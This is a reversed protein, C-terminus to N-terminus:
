SLFEQIVHRVLERDDVQGLAKIARDIAEDGVDERVLECLGRYFGDEFEPHAQFTMIHQSKRTIAYPCFDSGGLLMFDDAMTSVQDQHMALLRLATGRPISNLNGYLTIPYAGLGWGKSSKHVEGGLAAHIIQHGFCIGLLRVHAQDVLRIFTKLKQIWEDPDYAGWKSGSIIWADCLTVAEPFEGRYCRWVSYSFDSEGEGSLMSKFDVDYTGYKEVAEPYHEDCLLIGIHTM